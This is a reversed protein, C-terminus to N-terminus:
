RAQGGTPKQLAARAPPEHAKAIPKPQEPAPDARCGETGSAWQFVEARMRAAEAEPMRSNEVAISTGGGGPTGDLGPSETLQVRYAKYGWPKPQDSAREHVVIDV